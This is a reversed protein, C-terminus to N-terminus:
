LVRTAFNFATTAAFRASAGLGGMTMGSDLVAMGPLGAAPAPPVRPPAPPAVPPPAAGPAAVPGAPPAAAPVAAPLRGPGIIERPAPYSATSRHRTAPDSAPM